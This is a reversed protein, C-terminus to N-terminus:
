VTLHRVRTPVSPRNIRFNQCPHRRAQLRVQGRHLVLGNIGQFFKQACAAGQDLISGRCQVPGFAQGQGQQFALGVLMELLDGGLDMAMAERVLPTGM